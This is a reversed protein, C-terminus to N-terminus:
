DGPTSDEQAAHAAHAAATRNLAAIAAETRDPAPTQTVGAAEYAEDEDLTERELLRLALSDLKDRNARLTGLAEQYCEEVIRRAEEDVADLTGQSAYQQMPDAGDPPLVSLTGIRDSMGWRGVMSRAIKTVQELDSEAGTTVVGFVVEEAAMGGLAGIIRGRLYDRDYAYRDSDPTSVTVGLARGHPVITIKRVPDAGPFLMGLLAHGSEHFSTRRREEEPMVLARATGLQVKGLADRLEQMGVNGRGRKVSLLAAENILNALDAGTMGPTMKALAEFDVGSDIPVGRAHVKLIQIRGELDPPSVTILRDFRGPRLLASDLIDPRNTAAIVVVGESGSFGDMETLIQNLTQEREDNGGFSSGGRARGITDIEDIFIISPATKRAEQFLERVRAAGVGVVMEIFESAAASYFPASAEGAVARALLTKGTGPPGSLLVGKPVKAGMKRYKDPNKLFDVVESLEEEVEDIGAVDAFTARQEDPEVPKPTRRLSGLMGGGGGMRKQLWLLAGAWLGIFLLMPLLSLLINSLLSPQSNIPKAEVVVGKKVMESYINDNAFSPRITTFKQYTDSPDTSGPVQQKTRLNGQISSGKAYIDKVNGSAVQQTFATYPVTTSGPSRSENLSVFSTILVLAALIWPAWGGPPFRRPGQPTGKDPPPVGEARWPRQQAPDGNPKKGNGPPQQKTAPEPVRQKRATTSPDEAMRVGQM